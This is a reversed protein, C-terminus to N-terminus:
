GTSSPAAMPPSQWGSATRVSSASWRRTVFGTQLTLGLDDGASEKNM